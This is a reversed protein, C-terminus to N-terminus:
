FMKLLILLHFIYINRMILKQDLYVIGLDQFLNLLINIDILILKRGDRFIGFFECELEMRM